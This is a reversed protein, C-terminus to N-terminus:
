DEMQLIQEPSADLVSIYKNKKVPVNEAGAAM